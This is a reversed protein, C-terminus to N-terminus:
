VSLLDVYPPCFTSCIGVYSFANVVTYPGCSSVVFQHQTNALGEKGWLPASMVTEPGGQTVPRSYDQLNICYGPEGDVSLLSNVPYPWLPSWYYVAVGAHPSNLHQILIPFLTV